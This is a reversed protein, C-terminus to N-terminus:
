QRGGADAEQARGGARIGMMGPNGEHCAFEYV